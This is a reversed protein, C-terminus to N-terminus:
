SSQQVYTAVEMSNDYSFENFYKDEAEKRVAIADKLDSYLGLYIKQGDRKIEVSWKKATKHWYVGACGSKNDSRITHNMNNESPSALRLNSKRCDETRHNIHDVFSDAPADLVFRHLRIFGTENLKNAVVYGHNFFWCYQKIKDIDEIDVYFPEGKTTYGIAYDDCIEFVNYQKANKGLKYCLEDNYCGCSLHTGDRLSDGRAIVDKNSGCSCTCRWYVRSKKSKIHEPTDIKEIVTLRSEPVGHEKMVWGTMDIFNGM